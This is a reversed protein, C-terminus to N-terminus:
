HLTAQAQQEIGRMLEAFAQIPSRWGLTQRPRNNLLDAISDLAEQDHVSLDTGKPLFQRLLGNTNECSGKQWPSHPDCFYVRINTNRALEQHKSM